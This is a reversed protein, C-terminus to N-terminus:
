MSGGKELHEEYAEESINQCSEQWYCVEKQLKWVEEELTTTVEKLMKNEADLKKVLKWQNFEMSLLISALWYKKRGTLQEENVTGEKFSSEDLKITAVDPEVWTLIESIDYIGPKKPWIITPEM